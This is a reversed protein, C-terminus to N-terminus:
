VRPICLSPRYERKNDMVLVKPAKLAPKEPLKTRYTEIKLASDLSSFAMENIPVKNEEKNAKKVM